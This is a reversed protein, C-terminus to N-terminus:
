RHRHPHEPSHPVEQAMSKTLKPDLPLQSAGKGPKALERIHGVSSRVVYKGGLYKNITKAKAPSEVIVLTKGLAGGARRGKAAVAAMPWGRPQDLVVHVAELPPDRRRVRQWRLAAWLLVAAAVGFKVPWLDHLWGFATGLPSAHCSLTRYGVLGM